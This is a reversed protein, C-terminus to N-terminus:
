GRWTFLEPPIAISSDNEWANPIYPRQGLSDLAFYFFERCIKPLEQSVFTWYRMGYTTDTYFALHTTPMVVAIGLKSM